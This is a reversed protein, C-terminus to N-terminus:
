GDSTQLLDISDVNPDDAFPLLASSCFHYVTLPRRASLEAIAAEAPSQLRVGGALADEDSERPHVIHLDVISRAWHLQSRAADQDLMDDIVTGLLLSHADVSLLDRDEERLLSPWDISVCELRDDNVVNPLGPYITFHRESRARLYAAPGEPSILRSAREALGRGRKAHAAFYTSSALVNARGDDLSQFRIGPLLRLVITLPLFTLSASFVIGGSRRAPRTIRTLRAVNTAVPRDTFLDHTAIAGESLRDYLANVSKHDEDRNVWYLRILIYDEAIAGMEVLRLAILAQLRTRVM